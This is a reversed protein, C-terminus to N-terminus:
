FYVEGLGVGCKVELVLCHYYFQCLSTVFFVVYILTFISCKMLKKENTVFFFCACLGM